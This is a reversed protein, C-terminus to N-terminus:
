PRHDPREHPGAITDCGLSRPVALVYKWSYLREFRLDSEPEPMVSFALDIRREGLWSQLQAVSGDKLSIQIGPHAKGFDRLLAALRETPVSRLIGLPLRQVPAKRTVESKAANCEYIITRAHPLFRLGAETLSIKRADRNFLLTGLETELKKIGASLTPQSVFAREAARSFNSTEVVALFYRLQYIDM